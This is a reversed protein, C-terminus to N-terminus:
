LIISTFYTFFYKRETAAPQSLDMNIIIIVIIIDIIIIIIDIIIIIIDIIIIVIVVKNLHWIYNISSALPRSIPSVMEVVRLHVSFKLM